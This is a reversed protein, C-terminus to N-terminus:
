LESKGPIVGTATKPPEVKRTIVVINWFAEATLKELQSGNLRAHRLTEAVLEIASWIAPENVFELARRWSRYLVDADATDIEDV